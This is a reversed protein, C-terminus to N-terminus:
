DITRRNAQSNALLESLLPDFIGERTTIRLHIRRASPGFRKLKRQDLFNQVPHRVWKNSLGRAFKRILEDYVEYLDAENSNEFAEVYGLLLSQWLGHWTIDDIGFDDNVLMKRAFRHAITKVSHLLYLDVIDNVGSTRHDLSMAFTENDILTLEETTADYFINQAHFDGHIYTKGIKVDSDKKIIANKQHLKSMSFGVRYFVRQMKKYEVSQAIEERTLFEIEQGFDALISHLSRGRATQLLSFYRKKGHTKFLFHLDEFTIRAMLHSAPERTAMMLEKTPVKEASLASKKIRDLHAIEAKGKKTEKLIYLPRWDDLGAALCNHNYSIAFLQGSHVGKANEGLTKATFCQRALTWDMLADPLDLQGERILAGMIEIVFRDTLVGDKPLMPAKPLKDLNIIGLSSSSSACLGASLGLHMLIVILHKM